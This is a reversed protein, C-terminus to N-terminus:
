LDNWAEEDEESAWENLTASVGNLYTDVPSQIKRIVLHDGEIEFVLLDSEKLQAAKRIAAPITVQGKSTIKALEMGHNENIEKDESGEAVELFKNRAWIAVNFFCFLGKIKCVLIYPFAFGGVFM